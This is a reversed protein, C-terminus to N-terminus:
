ETPLRSAIVARVERRWERKERSRQTKGDVGSDPCDVGPSRRCVPCFSPHVRALMRPM